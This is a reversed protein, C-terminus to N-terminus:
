VMCQMVNNIAIFFLVGSYNQIAQQGQVQDTELFLLGIILAIFITQMFKSRINLPDRFANKSARGFLFSYQVIFSSKSKYVAPSIEKNIEV